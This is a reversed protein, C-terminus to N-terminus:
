TIEHKCFQAIGARSSPRNTGIPHRNRIAHRWIQGFQVFRTVSGKRQLRREPVIKNGGGGPGRVVVEHEPVGWTVWSGRRSATWSAAGATTGASVAQISTAVASTSRM